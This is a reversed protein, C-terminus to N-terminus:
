CWIYVVHSPFSCIGDRESIQRSTMGSGFRPGAMGSIRASEDNAGVYVGQVVAAGNAAEGFTLEQTIQTEQLIFGCTRCILKGDDDVVDSNSCERNECQPKSSKTPKSAAAPPQPTKRLQNPGLSARADFPTGRVTPRPTVDRSLSRRSFAPTSRRSVSFSNLM